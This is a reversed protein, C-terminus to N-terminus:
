DDQKLDQITINKNSIVADAECCDSVAVLKNQSINIAIALCYENCLGCIAPISIYKNM